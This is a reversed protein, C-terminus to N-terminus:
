KFLKDIGSQVKDLLGKFMKGLEMQNENSNIKKAKTMMEKIDVNKNDKIGFMLEAQKKYEEYIAIREKYGKRKNNKEDEILLDLYEVSTLPNPKLAIEDLRTLSQQIRITMMFVESALGEFEKAIHKQLTQAKDKEEVAINYKQLLNESTETVSEKYQEYIFPSNTHKSWHCGCVNCYGESNMASCKDKDEDHIFACDPHCPSRRCQMCTTNYIGNPANVRRFSEREVTYEFNKNQEIEKERQQIIIDVQRLEEMKSMGEDIRPRLGLITTELQKREKLVDKTLQLSKAEARQLESFFSEFSEVGDEWFMKQRALQRSNESKEIYLAGNEFTYFDRFPIEAAKIASLVAPDNITAFTIMLFINSAIDKGFISLIADFVYQQPPTLRPLSSQTVFGVCDIHKIGNEIEFFDKILSTIFQDKTIGDEDGFGLTDIITLNFPLRSFKGSYITYATIDTTQHKAQTKSEDKPLIFEYRFDDDWEVDLIHNIMGNILTTKGAGTAGVLLIVKESIIDINPKGIFCREVKHTSVVGDPRTFTRKLITESNENKMKELTYISPNGKSKLEAKSLLQVAIRTQNKM